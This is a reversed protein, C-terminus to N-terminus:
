VMGGLLLQAVFITAAIITLMLLIIILIKKKSLTPKEEKTNIDLPSLPTYFGDQNLMENAIIDNKENETLDEVKVKEGNIIYVDQKLKVDAQEDIFVINKKLPKSKYVIAQYMLVTGEKRLLIGGM